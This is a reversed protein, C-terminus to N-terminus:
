ANAQQTAPNLPPVVALGATIALGGADLQSRTAILPVTSTVIVESVSDHSMPALEVELDGLPPVQVDIQENVTITRVQVRASIPAMTPNLLDLRADDVYQPAAPFYWLTRPRPVAVPDSTLRWASGAPARTRDFPRRLTLPQGRLARQEQVSAPRPQQPAASPARLDFAVLHGSFGARAQAGFTSLANQIQAVLTLDAGGASMLWLHQRGVAVDQLFAPFGPDNPSM